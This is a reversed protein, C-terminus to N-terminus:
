LCALALQSLHATVLTVSFLSTLLFRVDSFHDAMFHPLGDGTARAGYFFKAARFSSIRLTISDGPIGPLSFADLVAHRGRM